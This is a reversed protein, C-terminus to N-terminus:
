NILKSNENLPYKYKGNNFDNESLVFETLNFSYASACHNM